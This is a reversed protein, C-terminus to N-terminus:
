KVWWEKASVCGLPVAWPMAPTGDYSLADLRDRQLWSFWTCSRDDSAMRWAWGALRERVARLSPGWRQGVMGERERMWTSGGVAYCANRRLVTSGAQRTAAVFVLHPNSR